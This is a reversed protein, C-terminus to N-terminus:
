RGSDASDMPDERGSAVNLASRAASLAAVVYSDVRGDDFDPNYDRTPGTRASELLRVAGELAKRQEDRDAM